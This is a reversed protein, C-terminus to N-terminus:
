SVGREPVLTGTSGHGKNQPLYELRELGANIPVRSAGCTQSPRARVGEEPTEPAPYDM